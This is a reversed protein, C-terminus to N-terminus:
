SALSDAGIRLIDRIDRYKLTLASCPSCNYVPYGAFLSFQPAMNTYKKEKEKVTISHATTQQSVHHAFDMGRLVDDAAAPNGNLDACHRVESESLYKCDVGLLYVARAGMILAFNVAAQASSYGCYLGQEIKRSVMNSRRYITVNESEVCGSSKSALIHAPHKTYDYGDKAAETLFTQDYFTHVQHPTLKYAHNVAIVERGILQSFDFGTLSPGSGVVFVSKGSYDVQPM